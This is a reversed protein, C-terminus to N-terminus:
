RLRIECTQVLFIRDGLLLDAVQVLPAPRPERPQQTRLDRFPQALQDDSLWAPRKVRDALAEPLDLVRRLVVAHLEEVMLGVRQVVEVVFTHRPPHRVEHADGCRPANRARCDLDHPPLLRHEHLVDREELRTGARGGVHVLVVRAPGKVPLPLYVYPDRQDVHASVHPRELVDLARVVGPRQPEGALEVHPGGVGLEAAPRDAATLRQARAIGLHVPVQGHVSRLLVRGVPDALSVHQPKRAGVREVVSDPVRVIVQEVQRDALREPFEGGEGVDIDVPQDASERLASGLPWIGAMGSSVSLPGSRLPEQNAAGPERPLIARLQSRLWPGGASMNSPVRGTMPMQLVQDSSVGQLPWRRSTASRTRRPTRSAPPTGISNGTVDSPSVRIRGVAMINRLRQLMSTSSDIRALGSSPTTSSAPHSLVVGASIMPAALQLTGVITTEPPGMSFPTKRPSRM